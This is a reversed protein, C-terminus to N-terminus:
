KKGEVASKRMQLAAIRGAVNMTVGLQAAIDALNMGRVDPYLDLRRGARGATSGNPAWMVDRLKTPNVRISRLNKLGLKRVGNDILRGCREALSDSHGDWFARGNMSASM